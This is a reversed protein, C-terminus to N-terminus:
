RAGSGVVEAYLSEAREAVRRYEFMAEVRERGARAMAEWDGRRELMASVADALGRPDNEECLRGCTDDVVEPIGAHRTAVVPRGIALAENVVNPLGETDGDSATRSPVLVLDADAIEDAVAAQPMAGCLKVADALGREAIAAELRPREVGEGLIRCTADFGRSRLEAVAHIATDFGKKEVLRGISLLRVGRPDAAPRPPSWRFLDLSIPLRQVVTRQPDTGAELLDRRLRDAVPLLLEGRDFLPRYRGDHLRRHACDRGIMCTAVPARFVGRDRLVVCMRGLDGQEAQVLQVGGGDGGGRDDIDALLEAFMPGGLAWALRGLALPNAARRAAAGRRGPRLLTRAAAPPRRRWHPGAPRAFRVRDALRYRQVVDHDWGDGPREALVRVDHGRELLGAVKWLTFTESLAPFSGVVLAIRM